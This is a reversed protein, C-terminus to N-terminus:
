WTQRTKQGRWLCSRQLHDAWVEHVVQGAAARQGQDIVVTGESVGDEEDTFRVLQLRVLVAREGHENAGQDALAPDDVLGCNFVRVRWCTPADLTDHAFTWNREDDGGCSLKM